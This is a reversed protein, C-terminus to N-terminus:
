IPLRKPGDAFVSAVTIKVTPLIRACLTRTSTAASGSRTTVSMGIHTHMRVIPKNAMPQVNIPPIRVTIQVSTICNKNNANPPTNAKTQIRM